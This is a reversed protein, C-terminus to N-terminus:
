AGDLGRVADEADRPDEFEIFAFGPPRRAVWVNRLQGYRSFKEELEDKSCGNGLEGVYVKCELDFDRPRSMSVPFRSLGASTSLLAILFVFLCCAGEGGGLFFCCCCVLCFSPEPGSHYIELTYCAQSGM